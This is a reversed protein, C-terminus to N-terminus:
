FQFYIFPQYDGAVWPLVFAIAAGFAAAFAFDPLARQRDEARRRALAFHIAWLAALLLWWGWGLPAERVEGGAFPLLGRYYILAEHLSPSRFLVWALMVALQKRNNMSASGLM